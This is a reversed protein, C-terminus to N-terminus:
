EEEQNNYLLSDKFYNIIAQKLFVTQEGPKLPPLKDLLKYHPWGEDDFFDFQYYGYPELLKCVAIHMLNIKEDKKFKRYGQGLEQVGILYVIADVDLTEGDGFRDSIKKQVEVWKEKISDKNGM